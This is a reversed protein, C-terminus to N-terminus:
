TTTTVIVGNANEPIDKTDINRTATKKNNEIRAAETSAQVQTSEASDEVLIMVDQRMTTYPEDIYFMKRRPDARNEISILEKRTLM